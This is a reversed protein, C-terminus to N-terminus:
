LYEKKADERTLIRIGAEAAKKIKDSTDQIDKVILHTVKKSVGAVFVFGKTEMQKQFEADRFGTLCVVGKTGEASLTPASIVTGLRPYPITPLEKCRWSEYVPYFTHFALLADKSWGDCSQISSWKRPDAQQVFLARLKTDGVGRIMLGSAVMLDLETCTQIRDQIAPYIKLAMGKGVIVDLDVQEITLLDNPTDKGEAVLKAILGPGLHPIDLTKAFHELKKQLLETTTSGTKIKYHSASREDGDWEGEPLTVPTGTQLVRDLTPIM